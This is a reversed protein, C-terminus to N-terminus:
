GNIKKHVIWVLLMQDCYVVSDIIWSGIFHNPNFKTSCVDNFLHQRGFAQSGRFHQPAFMTSCTNDLLCQRVLTTSCLKVFGALTTSCINDFLPLLGQFYQWVFTTSCFNVFGAFLTTSCWIYIFTIKFTEKWQVM